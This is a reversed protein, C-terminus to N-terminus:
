QSMALCERLALLLLPRTERGGAIQDFEWHGKEKRESARPPREHISIKDSEPREPATKSSPGRYRARRKKRRSPLLDCLATDGRRAHDYVYLYISEHSISYGPYEIPLRGSIQEPTWKEFLRREVYERIGENKLIIGTKKRYVRDSAMRHASAAGYQGSEGKNRKLERSITSPTRRLARAAYRVSRKKKVCYYRIDEREDKSLHSYHNHLM